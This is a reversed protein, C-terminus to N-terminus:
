NDTKYNKLEFIVIKAHIHFNKLKESNLGVKSTKTIIKPAFYLNGPPLVGSFSSVFLSRRNRARYSKNIVAM